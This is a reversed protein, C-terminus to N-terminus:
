EESVALRYVGFFFLAAIAISVIGLGGDIGYPLGGSTFWTSFESFMPTYILLGIGAAQAFKSGQRNIGVSVGAGLGFQLGLGAIILFLGLLFGAIIGGAASPVFSNNGGTTQGIPVGQFASIFNNCGQSAFTGMDTNPLCLPTDWNEVQAFLISHHYAKSIQGYSLPIALMYSWLPNNAANSHQNPHGISCGYYTYGPGNTLLTYNIQAIYDCTGPYTANALHYFQLTKTIGSFQTNWNTWTIAQAETVNLNDSSVQTCQGPIAAHKQDSTGMAGPSGIGCDVAIYSQSSGIVDFPYHSQGFLPTTQAGSQAGNTPGQLNSFMGLVNGQILKTFPSNANLFQISSGNLTCQSAARQCGVVAAGQCTTDLTNAYTSGSGPCVLAPQSSPNNSVILGSATYQNYLIGPLVLIGLALIIMGMGSLNLKALGIGREM